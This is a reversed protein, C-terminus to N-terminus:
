RCIRMLTPPLSVKESNERTRNSGVRWERSPARGVAKERAASNRKLQTPGQVNQSRAM